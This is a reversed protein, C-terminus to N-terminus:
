VNNKGSSRAIEFGSQGYLNVASVFILADNYFPLALYNRDGSVHHYSNGSSNIRKVIYQLIIGNSISPPSWTINIANSVLTVLANQVSTPASYM